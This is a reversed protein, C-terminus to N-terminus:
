LTRDNFDTLEDLDDIQTKITFTLLPFTTATSEDSSGDFTILCELTATSNHALAMLQSRPLRESLGHDFQLATLEHDELVTITLPDGSDSEGAVRLWIHAARWKKIITTIDGLYKTLDLVNDDGVEPIEPTPLLLAPSLSSKKEHSM